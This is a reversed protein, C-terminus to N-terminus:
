DFKWSLAFSGDKANKGTVRVVYAAAGNLTITDTADAESNSVTYRAKGNTEEITVTLTGEGAATLNYSLIFNQGKKLRIRKSETGDYSQFVGEWIQDTENGIFGLKKAKDKSGACGAFCLVFPLAALLLALSKKM